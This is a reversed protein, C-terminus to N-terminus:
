LRTGQMIVAPFLMQRTNKSALDCELRVSARIPASSVRTWAGPKRPALAQLFHVAQPRVNCGEVGPVDGASKKGEDAEHTGEPALRGGSYPNQRACPGPLPPRLFYPKDPPQQFARPPNHSVEVRLLQALRKQKRRLESDRKERLDLISPNPNHNLNVGKPRFNLTQPNM